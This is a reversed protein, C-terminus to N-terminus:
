HRGCKECGSTARRGNGTRLDPRDRARTGDPDVGPRISAGGNGGAVIQATRIRGNVPASRNRRRLRLRRRGVRRLRGGYPVVTAGVPEWRAVAGARPVELALM